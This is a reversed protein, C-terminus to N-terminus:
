EILLTKKQKKKMKRPQIQKPEEIEAEVISFDNIPEAAIQSVQELDLPVDQDAAPSIDADM